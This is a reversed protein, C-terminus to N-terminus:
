ILFGPLESEWDRLPISNDYKEVKRLHKDDATIFVGGNSIALAHYSSDYISPFGSKVHGDESMRMALEMESESLPMIKLYSNQFNDLLKKAKRVPYGNQQAISLVEYIFVDPCIIKLRYNALQRILLRASDADEENLFLKAFVNSDLTVNTIGM